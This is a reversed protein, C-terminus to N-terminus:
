LDFLGKLSDLVFSTTNYGQKLLLKWVRGKKKKGTERGKTTIVDVNELRVENTVM